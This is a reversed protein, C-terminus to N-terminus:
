CRFTRGCRLCGCSRRSRRRQRDVDGLLTQAYAGTFEFVVLDRDAPNGGYWATFWESAYSLGMVIAAMLMIKAMAEFHRPTILAHLGMNRSILAALMVVVAFGSYMAGVVFYPPFIPERWGPM